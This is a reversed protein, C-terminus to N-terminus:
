FTFINIHSCLGDFYLRECLACKRFVDSEKLSPDDLVFDAFVLDDGNSGILGFDM